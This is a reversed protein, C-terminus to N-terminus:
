QFFQSEAITKNLLFSLEVMTDHSTENKDKHNFHTLWMRTGKSDTAETLKKKLHWLLLQHGKIGTFHTQGVSNRHFSFCFLLECVHSTVNTFYCWLIYAM